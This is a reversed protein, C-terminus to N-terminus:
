VAATEIPQSSAAANPSRKDIGVTGESTDPASADRRTATSVQPVSALNEALSFGGQDGDSTEEPLAEGQTRHFLADLSVETKTSIKTSPNRGM